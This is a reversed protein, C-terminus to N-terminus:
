IFRHLDIVMVTKDDKNGRSASLDMLAKCSQLPSRHKLVEDVAEQNTVKDWLGDSAMILFESDSTIQLRRIEPESIIWDKLHLDGIARSIALSGQVRWVGNRCSVYGGSDEIRSREDERGPRHDNTLAEAVGNRSLVVRCDGANAILLEGGKLLVTAVCTGSSVCQSLFEKDTTLYGEKIAEELKDEGKLEDIAAIINKGLKETVHDVAARGGHGDFVGFIAQKPDGSINTIVGYGDEMDQKCGKRSALCYEREEVEFEVEEFVCRGEGFGGSSSEPIVIRAPRRRAKGLAAEGERPPAGATEGESPVVFVKSAIFPPELGLSRFVRKSPLTPPEPLATRWSLPPPSSPAPSTLVKMSFTKKLTIISHLLFNIMSFSVNMVSEVLVIM